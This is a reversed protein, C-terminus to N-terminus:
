NLNEVKIYTEEFYHCGVIKIGKTAKLVYDGPTVFIWSNEDKIRLHGKFVDVNGQKALWEPLEKVGNRWQFAEVMVPKKQYRM